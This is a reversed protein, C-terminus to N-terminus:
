GGDCNPGADPQELDVGAACTKEPGKGYAESVFAALSKEDICTAAYTAGWASAAIPTDLEPDPTLVLRAKPGAGGSVCLPDALADDFVKELAERQPCSGDCRYSLVVAGHEMDHVYMERPVPATYKKFAAWVPWHAGGSPPNTEYPVPECVTVHVAAPVPIGTVKTVRCESEGPLPEADPTLIETKESGPGAPVPPDVADGGCAAAGSLALWAWATTVRTVKDRRM